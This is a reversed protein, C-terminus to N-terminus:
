PNYQGTEQVFGTGEFPAPQSPDWINFAQLTYQFLLGENYGLGRGIDNVTSVMNGDVIRRDGHFNGKWVVAGEDDQFEFTGWMPGTLDVLSLIVNVEIVENYCVTEGGELYTWCTTAVQKMGRVHVHQDKVETTGPDLIASINSTATFYAKPAEASAVSASMIMLIILTIITITIRKSNM